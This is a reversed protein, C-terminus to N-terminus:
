LILDHLRLCLLRRQFILLLLLLLLVLLLLAFLLPRQREYENSIGASASTSGDRIWKMAM